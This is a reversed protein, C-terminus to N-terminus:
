LHHHNGLGRGMTNCVYGRRFSPRASIEISLEQRPRCEERPVTRTRRQRMVQRSRLMAHFKRRFASQSLSRDCCFPIQQLNGEFDTHELVIIIELSGWDSRAEYEMVSSIIYAILHSIHPRSLLLSFKTRLVNVSTIAIRVFQWVEVLNEM